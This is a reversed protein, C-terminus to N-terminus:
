VWQHLVILNKRSLRDVALFLQAWSSDPREAVLDDM